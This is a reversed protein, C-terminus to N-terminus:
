KKNVLLEQAVIETIYRKSGDKATYSRTSLKGDIIVQEGKKLVQEAIGALKGWAVINHWQTTTIKDGKKNLYDESTAVSFRAVKNGNELNKVEPMAGLNGTLQVRNKISNM